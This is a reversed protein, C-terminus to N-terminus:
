YSTTQASIAADINHSMHVTNISGIIVSSVGAHSYIFELNTKVPDEENQSGSVAHGSNLAKKVFIGKRHSRAYDIVSEEDAYSSNYMVMAMDSHKLTALGGEATKTSMGFARILGEEKLRQLTEFCDTKEIIDMDNGDSHVLVIDLYDSRLRKLSREISHKTHKASFDFYSGSSDFEEGVKTCILWDKRDTLLQGLREESHGYAPATDILNVGREKCMAIINRVADDNPLKFSSPYKVGSNRGFKVTGLGLSSVLLGTDGLQRKPLIEVTM